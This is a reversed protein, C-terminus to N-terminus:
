GALRGTPHCGSPGRRWARRHTLLAAARPPSGLRREGWRRGLRGNPAVVHDGRTRRVLRRRRGRRGMGTDEEGIQAEGLRHDGSQPCAAYPMRERDLRGGDRVRQGATVHEAPAAGAGALREREPQRRQGPEGRALRPGRLTGLRQDQHGRALQRDLDASASSGRAWTAPTRCFSTAPPSRRRAATRHRQLAAHVQQDRRRAAEDVQDVAARTASSLTSTAIRSSASWMASM